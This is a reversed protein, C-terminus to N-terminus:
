SLLCAAKHDPTRVIKLKKEQFISFLYLYVLVLLRRLLWSRFPSSPGVASFFLHRSLFQSFLRSSYPSFLLKLLFVVFQHVIIYTAWRWNPIPPSIADGM